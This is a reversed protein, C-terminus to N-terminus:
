FWPRLQSRLFSLIQRVIERSTESDHVLDFAHPSEAHNTFTLPLNRHLARAVFRDLAENLRPTEDRGSRVMFLPKDKPLDDVSRGAGPNVFGFKKAAEAVGTSADLDLTYGYCLVACKLSERDGEMLVSLALPVNGSSAFLGIRSEDIGLSVGNQRVHGLLAHLDRVPERNTYAVAAMGSAAILRAWSVTWGMEKFKCGVIRQVGEDPFGAVLVVAPTRSATTQGPPHYVDMTLGGSDTTRYEVDRRVTVKEVGPIAYVVRKKSIHDQPNEQSM